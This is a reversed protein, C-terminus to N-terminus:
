EERLVNYNVIEQPIYVGKQFLKLISEEYPIFENRFVVGINKNQKESYSPLVRGEALNVMYIYANVFLEINFKECYRKKLREYISIGEYDIDGWYFVKLPKLLYEEVTYEYEELSKEINKGCGYIITDVVQGLFVNQGQLMLKRITYWTDKNEIILVKQNRGKKCSFYVFPEPTKYVNLDELSLGLNRLICQGNGDKLFKERGWIEFSRENISMTVQLKNESSRFYNALCVIYEKDTEYKKLNNSYIERNFNLPFNYNIDEKLFNLNEIKYNVRYKNYLFPIMGNSKSSKVESLVETEVQQKVFEVLIKYDEIKFYEQIEMLSIMKKGLGYITKIKILEM